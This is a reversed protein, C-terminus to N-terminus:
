LDFNSYRWWYHRRRWILSFHTPRLVGLYVFLCVFLSMYSVMYLLRLFGTRNFFFYFKGYTFVTHLEKMKGYDYFCKKSLDIYWWHYIVLNEKRFWKTPKNYIKLFEFQKSLQSKLSVQWGFAMNELACLLYRKLCSSVQGWISRIRKNGHCHKLWISVYLLLPWLGPEEIISHWSHGFTLLCWWESCNRSDM